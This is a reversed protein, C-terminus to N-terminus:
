LKTDRIEMWIKGIMNQGKGAKGLGWFYDVPSNEIIKRNKTKKLIKKVDEHQKFKALLIEKMIILRKEHWGDIIKAKNNDAINKAEEPSKANFIKDAVNKSTDVFKKWQYAHEVTSFELGWINIKHASFNDLPAFATTFFYVAKATERNLNKSSDPYM